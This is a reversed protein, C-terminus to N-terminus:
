LELGPAEHELARERVRLRTRELGVAAPPRERTQSREQEREWGALREEAHELVRREFSIRVGLEPGHRRRGLWGLAALEEEARALRGQAADGAERLRGREEEQLRERVALAHRARESDPRSPPRDTPQELALREGQSRGLAEALRTLGDREGPSTPGREEDALESAAVYVRTEARARSLAVYGWEKLPGQGRALVYGRTLTLGQTAHGTLAYGYGLHGAALYSAPLM